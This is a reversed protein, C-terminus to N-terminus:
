PGRRVGTGPRVDGHRVLEARQDLIEEVVHRINALGHDAHMAVVIEAEGDGVREGGDLVARALYLDGYVADALAPM